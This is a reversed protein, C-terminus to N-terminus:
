TRAKKNDLLIRYRARATHEGCKIRKCIEFWHINRDRAEMLLLDEIETWERQKAGGATRPASDLWDQIDKTFKIKSASPKSVGQPTELRDPM